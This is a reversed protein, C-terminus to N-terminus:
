KSKYEHKKQFVYTNPSHKIYTYTVGIECFAIVDFNDHEYKEVWGDWPGGVLTIPVTKESQPTESM